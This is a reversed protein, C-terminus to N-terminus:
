ADVEIGAERLRDNQYEELFEDTTTTRQGMKFVKLRGANIEKHVFGGSCNDWRKRIANIGRVMGM